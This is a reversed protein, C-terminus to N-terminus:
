EKNVPKPSSITPLSDYAEVLAKGQEKVPSTTLIKFVKDIYMNRCKEKDIYEIRDSDFYKEIKEIVVKASAPKPYRTGTLWSTLTSAKFGTIKSIEKVTLGSEEYIKRLKQSTKEREEQKRRQRAEKHTM